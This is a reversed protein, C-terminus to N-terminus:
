VLGARVLELDCTDCLDLRAPLGTRDCGQVLKSFRQGHRYIIQDASASTEPDPPKGLARDVYCNATSQLM